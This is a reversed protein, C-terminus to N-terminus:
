MMLGRIPVYNDYLLDKKRKKQRDAKREVKRKKQREKKEDPKREKRRNKKRKKQRDTKREKNREKKREKKREKETQVRGGVWKLHLSNSNCSIVNLSVCVCVCVCVVYGCVYVGCVCVCVCVSVRGPERPRPILGDWLGRGSLVCCDCSVSIWTGPPIRVWLGLWRSAVSLRRLGHPVRHGSSLMDRMVSYKLDWFLLPIVSINLLCHPCCDFTAMKVKTKVQGSWHCIHLSWLGQRRIKGGLTHISVQGLCDGQASVNVGKRLRYEATEVVVTILRNKSEDLTRYIDRLDDRGKWERCCKTEAAQLSRPNVCRCLTVSMDHFM